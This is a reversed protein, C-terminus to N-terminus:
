LKLFSLPSKGLQLHQLVLFVPLLLAEEELLALNTTISIFEFCATLSHCYWM